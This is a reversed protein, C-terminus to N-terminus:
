NATHLQAFTHTHTHQNDSHVLTGIIFLKCKVLYNESEKKINSLPDLTVAAFMFTQKHSLVSSRLEVTHKHVINLCVVAHSFLQCQCTCTLPLM